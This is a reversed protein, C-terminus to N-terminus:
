SSMMSIRRVSYGTVYPSMAAKARGHILTGHLDRGYVGSVSDVQTTQRWGASQSRPGAQSAGCLLFPRKGDSHGEKHKGPGARRIAAITTATFTAADGLCRELM